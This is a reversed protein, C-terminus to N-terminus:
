LRKSGLRGNLGDWTDHAPERNLPNALGHETLSTSGKNYNCAGCSVVINNATNTGGMARPTIHDWTLRLVRELRHCEFTTPGVPLAAPLRKELAAMAPPTVLRLHCYRCRFGDRELVERRVAAPVSSPEKVGDYMQALFPDRRGWALGGELWYWEFATWDVARAYAHARALRRAEAAKRAKAPLGPLLPRELEGAALLLLDPAIEVAPPVEVLSWKLAEAKPM